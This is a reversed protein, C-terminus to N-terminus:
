ELVEEVFGGRSPTYRRVDPLVGDSEVLVLIMGGFGGGMMRAGLVGTSRQLIEVQKDVEPLSVGITQLSAHSENLLQGLHKATAGQAQKVRRNESHVHLAKVETSVASSYSSQSLKRHIKSDVLKFIWDKPVALSTASQESFDLLSAHGVQAFMMAMQDLLGCPTMLIEHELRQAEKCAELPGMSGNACLTVALCLAASSSMGAGIPISSTVSLRAPWGGAAQWLEVVTPDGEFGSTLPTADLVLHVDVAFALSKGGAYDTHEGIINIRAPITARRHM